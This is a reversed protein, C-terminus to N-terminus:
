RVGLWTEIRRAWGGLGAYALGLALAIGTVNAVADHWDALRTTTLTGQLLEVLVGFLAALLAVWPYGRREVVGAAALTLAFYAASHEFKDSRSVAEIVTAPLLSVALIAGALAIVGAVWATRYRLDLIM